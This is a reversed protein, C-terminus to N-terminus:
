LNWLLSRNRLYKKFSEGRIPMFRQRLPHHRPSLLEYNFHEIMPRVIKNLLVIELDCITNRWKTSPTSNVGTFKKNSTSNGGWPEGCLTPRLLIEHMEIGTNQAITNLTNQPDSVLDEYRIVLYNDFLKINKFLHCYSNKLSELYTSLYPYGQQWNTSRSAVLTAYPNRVIHIFTADPFWKYLLPAFEAHEVSKEVIRMGDPVDRGYLAHHFANFYVTMLTREDPEANKQLYERFNDENYKNEVMVAGHPDDNINEDHIYRTLATIREELTPNRPQSRRLRFDVCHGALQFYHSESPIVFLEPHGDLLSRLLSSGSKQSGFIFVPRDLTQM